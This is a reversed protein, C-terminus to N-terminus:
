PHNVEAEDGETSPGAVITRAAADLESPIRMDRAFHNLPGLPLVGLIKDSGVITSAVSSVTGDGGGAVIVKYPGRAADRSLETVEAGSHAVSFDVSLQSDNFIPVLRECVTNNDGLGARASIIIKVPSLSM